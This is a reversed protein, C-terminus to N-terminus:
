PVDVCRVGSGAAQRLAELDLSYPLVSSLLAVVLATGLLGPQAFASDVHVSARPLVVLAGVAMAIPWATGGPFAAGYAQRPLHVGDLDLRGRARVRRRGPRGIWRRARDAARHRGRRPRDVRSDLPRRSGLVAVLLPGSFEITVAIGLPLRSIAEYFSWNM